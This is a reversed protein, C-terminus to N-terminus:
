IVMSLKATSISILVSNILKNDWFVLHFYVGINNYIHNCELNSYILTYVYANINKMYAIWYAQFILIKMNDYYFIM